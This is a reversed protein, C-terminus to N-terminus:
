PVPVVVCDFHQDVVTTGGVTVTAGGPCVTVDASAPVALAAVALETAAALRFM